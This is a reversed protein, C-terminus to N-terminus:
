DPNALSAYVSGFGLEGLLEDERAHMRAAGARSHDDYGLLHLLGHVIYLLLEVAAPHGRRAAQRCAVPWCVNIQGVVPGGSGASEDSLDFAIVDTPGQHGLWQRNLRTMGANGLIVIELHSCRANHRHLVHRVVRRIRTDSLGRPRSRRIVEIRGDRREYPDNDQKAM